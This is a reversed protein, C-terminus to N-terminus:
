LRRGWFFWVELIKSPVQMGTGRMLRTTLSFCPSFVLDLLTCHQMNWLETVMYSSSIGRLGRQCTWRCLWPSALGVNWTLLFCPVLPFAAFVAEKKRTSVFGTLDGWMEYDLHRLFVSQQRTIGLSCGFFFRLCMFSFWFCRLLWVLWSRWM